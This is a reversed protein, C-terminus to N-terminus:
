PRCENNGCCSTAKPLAANTASRAANHEYKDHHRVWAMSYPLGEEDRGKPVLDLLSYTGVLAEVGRAYSSYTHYIEGEPGRAFVSVGPAEEVPFTMEQYNYLVKGMALEEKSFSVHFDLNFRGGSSSVWPFGWGMREKFARIQALPARSVVVLSVDRANLHVRPGDLHDSVFSCSPCGEAWDPGFMFHYVILQGRGDFLDGLTVKGHPGDFEYSQDVRVWPLERRLRSLEDRRRTFEKEQRLLEKRAILWQDKSVVAHRLM